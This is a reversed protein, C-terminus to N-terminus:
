FDDDDTHYTATRETTRPGDEDETEDDGDDEYIDDDYEDDDEEDEEEREDIKNIIPNKESMKEGEPVETVTVIYDEGTDQPIEGEELEERENICAQYTKLTQTGALNATNNMDSRITSYLEDEETSKFNYTDASPETSVKSTKSKMSTELTNSFGLDADTSDLGKDRAKYREPNMYKELSTDMGNEMSSQDQTMTLSTDDNIDYRPINLQHRIDDLIQHMRLQLEFNTIIMCCKYLRLCKCKQVSNSM